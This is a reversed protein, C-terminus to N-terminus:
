RRRSLLSCVIAIAGLVAWAPWSLVTVIGPNWLEPSIYREVFNQATTLSELNVDAWRQGLAKPVFEDTETMAWVDGALSLAALVWFALSLLRIVIMIAVTAALGTRMWDM